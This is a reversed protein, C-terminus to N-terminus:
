RFPRAGCVGGCAVLLFCVSVLLLAAGRVVFSRASESNLNADIFFFCSAGRGAKDIESLM